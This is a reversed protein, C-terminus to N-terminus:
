PALAHRTAKSFVTGPDISTSGDSFKFSFFMWYFWLRLADAVSRLRLNFSSFQVPRGWRHRSILAMYCLESRECAIHNHLRHLTLSLKFTLASYIGPYPEQTACWPTKPIATPGVTFSLSFSLSLPQRM